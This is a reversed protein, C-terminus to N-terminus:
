LLMLRSPAQRRRRRRSMAACALVVATTSPEPVPTLAWDFDADMAGFDNRPIPSTFINGMNFVGVTYQTGSTVARVFDGNANPDYSNTLDLGGGPGSWQIEAGLLGFLNGSGRVNYHMTFFGDSTAQFTYSWVPGPLVFGNLKAGSSTVTNHVWGMGRWAVSGQGANVWNASASSTVTLSRGANVADFDTVSLSHAYANLTGTQQDLFVDTHVSGDNQNADAYVGLRFTSGIAIQAQTLPAGLCLAAFGVLIRKSGFM